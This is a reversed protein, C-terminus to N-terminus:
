APGTGKGLGGGVGLTGTWVLHVAVNVIGRREDAERKLVRAKILQAIDKVRV